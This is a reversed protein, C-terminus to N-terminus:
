MVAIIVFRPLRRWAASQQQAPGIESDTTMYIQNDVPPFDFLKYVKDGRVYSLTNLTWDTTQLYGYDGNDFRVAQYSCYGTKQNEIVENTSAFGTFRNGMREYVTEELTNGSVSYVYMNKSSISHLHMTEGDASVAVECYTDGQTAACNIPHLDLSRSIQKLSLDYVFLGFYGHFIVIDDSAYDLVAM